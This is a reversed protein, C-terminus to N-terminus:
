DRTDVVEECSDEAVKPQGTSEQGALVWITDYVMRGFMASRPQKRVSVVRYGKFASLWRARIRSATQLRDLRQAPISGVEREKGMALVTKM